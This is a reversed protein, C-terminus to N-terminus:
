RHPGSIELSCNRQIQFDIKFKGKLQNKPNQKDERSSVIQMATNILPVELKELGEDLDHMCDLKIIEVFASRTQLDYIKYSRKSVAKDITFSKLPHREKHDVGNILDIKKTQKLPGITRCKFDNASFSRGDSQNLGFNQASCYLSINSLISAGFYANLRCDDIRPPSEIAALSFGGVVVVGIAAPDVEDRVALSLLSLSALHFFADEAMMRAM